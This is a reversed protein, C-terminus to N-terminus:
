GCTRCATWWPTCRGTGATSGQRQPADARGAPADGRDLAAVPDEDEVLPLLAPFYRLNEEFLDFVSTIWREGFWVRPRVGQEKLEDPGTDTAQEFLTLRRKGGCSAGRVPVPLQGCVAVQAGAIAQAANWYSGFAEPSVQLHCQVSTCAAEPTITDIHTLLREPGEIWIRMEEGRAAFIQGNLLRYRPNPPCRTCASMARAAAHAPHRDHGPPERGPPGPGRRPGLSTRVRRELGALADGALPQPPVNIELNFQGLESAWHPDAIAGLVESNKM